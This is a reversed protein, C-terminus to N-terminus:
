IAKRLESIFVDTQKPTGISVRFCDKLRTSGPLRVFVGNRALSEVVEQRGIGSLECLIFNGKSPWAKLNSIGELLSFMRDREEIIRNVNRLLFDVDDLSATVGLTAVAGINYPMKVKLLQKIIYPHAIAYGVRLGAIGAWKSMTRLVILNEYENVLSAFSKGYFEFYAEDVVIVLNTDLLTKIQQDSTPNGTPNNPSNVFIIKTTKSIADKTAELDIRFKGDLPVTKVTGGALEACFKYMGFSPDFDIISDDRDIFIRIILDILEGSGAGLVINSPNLSTYKAIADRALRQLPDPYVSLPSSAIFDAVKPSCGYPNENANLRVIKDPPIGSNVSLIDPPDVPSFTAAKLLNPRILQETM